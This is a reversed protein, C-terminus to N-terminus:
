MNIVPKDFRLDIRAPMIGKIRFGALLTQLTNVPAEIPNSQSFLIDINAVRARISSNDYPTLYDVPIDSPLASLIKLAAIIGTDSVIEGLHYIRIDFRLEPLALNNIDDGIVVGSRGLLLQQSPTKLRAFPKRQKVLIILTNPFKKKFSVTDVLPNSQKLQQAIRESPFFLLNKPFSTNDIIIKLNDGAVEINKIQLSHIVGLPLLISVLLIFFFKVYVRRQNPTFLQMKM